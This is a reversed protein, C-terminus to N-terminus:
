RQLKEIRILEAVLDKNIGLLKAHYEPAHSKESMLLDLRQQIEELKTM